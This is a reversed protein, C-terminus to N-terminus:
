IHNWFEWCFLHGVSLTDAWKSVNRWVLVEMHLNVTPLSRELNM